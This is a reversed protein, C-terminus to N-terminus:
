EKLADEQLHTNRLTYNAEQKIDKKASNNLRKQPAEQLVDKRYIM